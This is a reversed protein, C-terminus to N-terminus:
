DGSTGRIYFFSAIFALSVALLAAAYTLAEWGMGRSEAPGVDALIGAFGLTAVLILLLAPMALLIGIALFVFQLVNM